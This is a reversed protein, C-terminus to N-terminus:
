WKNKPNAYFRCSSFEDKTPVWRTKLERNHWKLLTGSLEDTTVKYERREKGSYMYIDGGQMLIDLADNYSIYEPKFSRRM